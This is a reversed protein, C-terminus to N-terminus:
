KIVTDPNLEKLIIYSIINERLWEAIENADEKNNMFMDWNRMIIKGPFKNKILNQYCELSVGMLEAVDDDISYRKENYIVVIFYRNRSCEVLVELM